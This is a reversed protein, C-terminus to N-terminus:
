IKNLKNFREIAEDTAYTLLRNVTKEAQTFDTCPMGNPWFAAIVETDFFDQFEYILGDKLQYWAVGRNMYLGGHAPKGTTFWHVATMDDKFIVWKNHFKLTNGMSLQINKFLEIINDRGVIKNPFSSGPFELLCDEHLMKSMTDFDSNSFAEYFNIIGQEDVLKITNM